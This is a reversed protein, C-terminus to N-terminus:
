VLLSLSLTNKYIIIGAATKIIQALAVTRPEDEDDARIIDRLEDELKEIANSRDRVKKVAPLFWFYGYIAVGSLIIGSIGTAARSQLLRLRLDEIIKDQAM